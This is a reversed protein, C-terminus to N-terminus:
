RRWCPRAAYAALAARSTGFDALVADPERLLAHLAARWRARRWWLLPWPLGDREFGPATLNEGPGAADSRQPRRPRRAALVVVKGPATEAEAQM